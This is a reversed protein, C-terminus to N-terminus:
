KILLDTHIHDVSRVDGWCSSRTQVSPSPIFFSQQVEQIKYFGTLAFSNKLVLSPHGQPCNLSRPQRWPKLLADCRDTRAWLRSWWWTSGQGPLAAPCPNPSIKLFHPLSPPFFTDLLCLMLLFPNIRLGQCRM